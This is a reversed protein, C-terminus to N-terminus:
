DASEFAIRSKEPSVNEVSVFYSPNGLLRLLAGPSRDDFAQGFAEQM